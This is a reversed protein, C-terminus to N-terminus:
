LVKKVFGTMAADLDPAKGSGLNKNIPGHRYASGDFLTVDAGEARAMSAFNGVANAHGRTRSYTAFIPPLPASMRYAPSMPGWDDKDPFAKEVARPLRNNHARALTILDLAGSDNLIVGAPQPVWGTLTAMAALHAGASHGMVITTEPPAVNAFCWDIAERVAGIQQDITVKPLLPYDISVFDLGMSAAWDPKHDVNKRSGFRWAGGHVYILLGRPATTRTLDLKDPGYSLTETRNKAM